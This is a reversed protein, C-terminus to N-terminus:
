RRPRTPQADAPAAGAARAAPLVEAGLREVVEEFEDMLLRVDLVVLDAGRVVFEALGARLDDASGALLAGNVDDATALPLGYYGALFDCLPPV